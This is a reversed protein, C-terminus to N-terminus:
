QKSRLDHLDSVLKRVAEVDGRRAALSVRFLTEDLRAGGNSASVGSERLERAASGIRSVNSADIEGLSLEFLMEAAASSESSSRPSQLAPESSQMGDPAEADDEGTETAAEADDTPKGGSTSFVRLLSSPTIPAFLHRLRRKSRPEQSAEDVGPTSDERSEKQPGSPGTGGFSMLAGLPRLLYLRPAHERHARPTGVDLGDPTQAFVIVDPEPELNDPIAENADFSMVQIDLYRAWREVIEREWAAVGVLAVTQVREAEPPVYRSTETSELPLFVSFTSGGGEESELVIRGGMLSVLDDAVALGIGAGGYSRTSGGDLQTFPRFVAERQSASIGRGTDSVSIIVSEAARARDDIGPEGGANRSTDVRVGVEVLGEDTYKVANAVLNSLVQSLRARDCLVFAPAAPDHVLRLSLGKRHAEVAFSEVVSEVLQDLNVERRELEIHGSELRSLDLISSILGHLNEAASKLIGLYEGQEENQSLGHALDAMGLISNLPTRLEHTVNALFESKTKLAQQAEDRAQKLEREYDLIDSVERLVIVRGQLSSEHSEVQPGEMERTNPAPKETHVDEAEAVAGGIDSIRQEVCVTTGDPRLLRVANPLIGSALDQEPIQEVHVVEDVHRGVAESERRGTLEAGRENLFLVTGSADTTVVGDFLAGVTGYLWNRSESLRRQMREKYLAMEIAIGLEREKFPKLVYGFADAVKARELSEDDSFATLFVVPIGTKERIQSAAVIGDIQGTLQIDMLVLDPKNEVASKVAEEGSNVVELAAYGLQAVRRRIDMAVIAEDEVILIYTQTGPGDSM